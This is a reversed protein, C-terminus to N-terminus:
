VPVFTAAAAEVEKRKELKDKTAQVKAEAMKYMEEVLATLNAPLPKGTEDTAPQYKPARVPNEGDWRAFDYRITTGVAMGHHPATVEEGEWVEGNALAEVLDEYDQISLKGPGLPEPVMEGTKPDKRNRQVTQPKGDASFLGSGAWSKVLERAVARLAREFTSLSTADSRSRIIGSCDYRELLKDLDEQTLYVGNAAQARIRAAFTNRPNEVAVTQNLTRVIGNPDLGLAEFAAINLFSLDFPQPFRFKPIPKGAEEYTSAQITIERTPVGAPIKM